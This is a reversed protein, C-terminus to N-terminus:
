AVPTLRILPIVRDTKQQYRGYLPAKQMLWDWARDREDGELSAASVKMKQGDVDFIADDPNRVLNRVWQPHRQAGGNSAVLLWTGGPELFGVLPTRRRRGTRAGTTEIVCMRGEGIHIRRGLLPYLAVNLALFGRVFPLPVPPKTGYTGNPPLTVSM